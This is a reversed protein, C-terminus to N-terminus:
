TMSSRNVMSLRIARGTEYRAATPPARLYDHLCRPL